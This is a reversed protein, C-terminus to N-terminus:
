MEALGGDTNEETPLDIYSFLLRLLNIVQEQLTSSAV